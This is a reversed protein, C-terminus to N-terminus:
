DSRAVKSLGGEPDTVGNEQQTNFWDVEPADIPCGRAERSHYARLEIEEHSCSHNAVIVGGENDM